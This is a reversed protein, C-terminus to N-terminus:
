NINQGRLRGFNAFNKTGYLGSRICRHKINYGMIEDSNVNGLM